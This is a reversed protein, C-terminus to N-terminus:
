RRDRHSFELTVFTRTGPAAFDSRLMEPARYAGTAEGYLAFPIADFLATKGAGPDGSSRARGSSGLGTRALAGPAAYPGFASVTLQLPKM